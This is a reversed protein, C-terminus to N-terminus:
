TREDNRRAHRSPTGALQLAMARLELVVGHSIPTADPRIHELIADMEAAHALLGARWGARYDASTSPAQPPLSLADSM